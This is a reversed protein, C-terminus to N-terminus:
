VQVIDLDDSLVRSDEDDLASVTQAAFLKEPSTEATCILKVRHNYLNDIM